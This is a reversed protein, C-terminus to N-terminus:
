ATQSFRVWFRTRTQLNLKLAQAIVLLTRDTDDLPFVGSVRMGAVDDSCQLFGRRYRGLEDLTRDLRWGDIVLLGRSWESLGLDAPRPVAVTDAAIDLMMGAEVIVPEMTRANSVAVAHELVTLRTHDPYLRVNFRTGLALMDGHPSRVSLPRSDAATQVLIEGAHVVILRHNAGYRIDVATGTNLSLRTGDALTVDRREGVGTRLDAFWEPSHFYGTGVLGAMGLGLVGGKLLTRRGVLVADEGITQRALAGPIGQLNTQLREVRAWAWQHLPDLVLWAQLQSLTQSCQPAAGLRAHWQAAERLALHRDSLRM